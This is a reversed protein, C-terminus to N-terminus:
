NLRIRGSQYSFFLKYIVVALLAGVIPGLWYIWHNSWELNWLAPAFSRAPNLSAGTFPIAFLNTGFVTFGIALPALSNAYRNDLATALIVMVLMFTIIVEILLGQFANINNGLAGHVGLNASAGANLDLGALGVVLIYALAAGLLQAAIYMVAERVTLKGLVAAAITVAPNMHAGSVGGFAIAGIIIGLGHGLAIILVPNAADTQVVMAVSGIGVGIFIFTAFFEASTRRAAEGLKLDLTEFFKFM